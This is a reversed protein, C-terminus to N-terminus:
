LSKVSVKITGNHAYTYTSTADSGRSIFVMAYPGAPMVTTSTNEAIQSVQQGVSQPDSAAVLYAEGPHARLAVSLDDGHFLFSDRPIERLVKGQDDVLLLHPSFLGAGLPQSAITIQYPTSAAPLRFVAYLSKAGQGDQLCPGSGDLTV